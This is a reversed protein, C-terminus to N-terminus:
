FLLLESGLFAFRLAVTAIDCLVFTISTLGFWDRVVLGLESFSYSHLQRALPALAYLLLTKTMGLVYLEDGTSLAL